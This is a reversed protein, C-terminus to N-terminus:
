SNWIVRMPREIRLQETTWIARYVFDHSATLAAGPLSGTASIIMPATTHAVPTGTLTVASATLRIQNSANLSVNTTLAAGTVTEHIIGDSLSTLGSETGTVKTLFAVPAVIQVEALHLYNASDLQVRIYRGSRGVAIETPRGVVGTYVYSTVGPTTSPPSLFPVDAVFVTVNTARTECCDTRNWLKVSTIPQIRGTDVQWWQGVTQSNTHSVSSAAFYDGNTNGDIARAPSSGPYSSIESAIWNGDNGLATLQPSATQTSRGGATRALVPLAGRLTLRGITPTTLKISTTMTVRIRAFRLGDISTPTAEQGGSFVTGAAGNPGVYNWPGTASASAAIQFTAGGLVPALADATLAAYIATGVGSDVVQSDWTGTLPYLGETPSAVGILPTRELVSFGAIMPTTTFGGGATGKALSLTITGGAGVVAPYLRGIGIDPGAATVRVNLNPDVTAGNVLVNFRRNTVWKEAFYGTLNVTSGVPLGPITYTLPGPDGANLYTISDSFVDQPIGAAGAGLTNVPAAAYLDTIAPTASVWAAIAVDNVWLPAGAAPFGLSGTDAYIPTMPGAAATSVSAAAANGSYLCITTGTTPISAIVSVVTAATNIPGVLFMPLLTVNDNAIARIDNGTTQMWGSAIDAASDFTLTVRQTVAPTIGAIAFCRRTSWNQDWWPRVGPGTSGAPKLTLTNAVATSSTSTYTGGSWEASTDWPTLTGQTMDWFRLTGTENAVAKSQTRVQTAAWAAPVGILMAAIAAAFATRGRM